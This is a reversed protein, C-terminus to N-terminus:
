YFVGSTLGHLSNKSKTLPGFEEDRDDKKGM